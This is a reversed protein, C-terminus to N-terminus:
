APFHFHMNRLVSTSNLQRSRIGGCIKLADKHVQQKKGKTNLTTDARILEHEQKLLKNRENSAV